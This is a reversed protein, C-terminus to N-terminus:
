KAWWDRRYPKLSVFVDPDVKDLLRLESGQDPSGAIGYPSDWRAAFRSTQLASAHKIGVPVSAWGWAGTMALEGDDNRPDEGFSVKTYVRGKLLANRPAFRYDTGVADPVILGDLTYLDDIEAVWRCTRADYRVAYLREEPSDVKGFQRNAGRDVARCAAPLALALKGDDVTDDVRVYDKIEDLEIYDPAWAM